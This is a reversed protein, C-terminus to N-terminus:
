VSAALGRGGTNKGADRIKIMVQDLSSGERNFILPHGNEKGERRVGTGGTREEHSM